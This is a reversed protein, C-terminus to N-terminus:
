WNCNGTLIPINLVVEQIFKQLYKYSGTTAMDKYHISNGPNYHISTEVVKDIVFSCHFHCFVIPNTQVIKGINAKM